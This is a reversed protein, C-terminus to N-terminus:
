VLPLASKGMLHKDIFHAARRGESIAWVILSQGRHMDGAAFVNAVSTQYAPDTKVNGRADLEVGLQELLGSKDPHLFGLALVVLDAEIEFASGPVEQMAMRGAADKTFTVRVCSLKRVRGQEDGIFKKTSISWQRECGEAHSSTTKLLLPYKPWPFDASRSEPPKPMLEIQVVCAAGQRNATGVCDSGTDGGGIVVVKKGRADIIADKPVREGANHRNTQALYDTAFYIGKLNRGEIGLDRPQRSGGTLCVADFGTRLDAVSLDVGVNVGTKFIIGEKKMLGVRRDIVSKELKFDPIGYRLWGGVKRDREFLTVKHGARNLQDTCALGAPGSGIVAVKKGTRKRPPQPQILGEKYAYEIVALENERITVPDDNVGLVCAYECLAPCLRGTIEPLNNAARLLAFAKSWQGNFVLDNWEPVYNGLPCAGHCFPTGCDM